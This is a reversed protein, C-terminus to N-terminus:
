IIVFHLIFLYFKVNRKIYLEYVVKQTSFISIQILTHKRIQIKKLDEQGALDFIKERERFLWSELM